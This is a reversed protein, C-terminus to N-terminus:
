ERGGAWVHRATLEEKSMEWHEQSQMFHILGDFREVFVAASQDTGQLFEAMVERGVAVFYDRNATSAVLADLAQRVCHLKALFDAEDRCHM